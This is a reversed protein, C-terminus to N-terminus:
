PHKGPLDITFTTGQSSTTFDVTGDHDEVIRRVIALGLGTGTPKGATTFAEFLRDRIAEPIGPGDDSLVFRLGGEDLDTITWTFTGAQGLAQRANRAINTVVRLMKMEDFWGVGRSQDVIQFAVGQAEYEYQLAESVAAIFTRLHVKRVLISRQGKAFNLVEATMDKFENVKRRITGAMDIREVPDAEEAMLQSYGSIIAMPANLDHLVGSLMRGVTMLRDRGQASQREALRAITRGMQGAMLVALRQDAEDDRQRRKSRNIFAVAGITKEGDQLPAAVVDHVQYACGGGLDRGMGVAEFDADAALVYVQGRSVTKGLIGEGTGFSCLLTLPTHPNPGRLWAPGQGDQDPLFIAARECQAVHCALRLVRDCLDTLDDVEALHRENDYLFELETVKQQLQRSADTLEANSMKLKLHLQLAELTVAAQAALATLLRQDEVTFYGERKNLVQVVGTVQRQPNRMPVCLMSQTKYGTLKDFKPDFRPHQYANKLNIPRGRLAVLGAVGDGIPVGVSISAEGQVAIGYLMQDTTNITYISTRDAHLLSSIQDLMLRMAKDPHRTRGLNDAISLMGELQAQQEDVTAELQRIREETACPPPALEPSLPQAREPVIVPADPAPPSPRQSM